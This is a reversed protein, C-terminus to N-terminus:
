QRMLWVRLGTIFVILPIFIVTAFFIFGVNSSTLSLHRDTPQRAELSILEVREDNHGHRTVWILGTTIAQEDVTSVEYRHVGSVFVLGHKKFEYSQALAPENAPDHLKYTLLDSYRSYRELYDKSKRWHQSGAQFFGVVQVPEALNELVTITQESLTFERTETLDYEFNNKLSLFNVIVLISVFTLCIVLINSAYRISRGALALHVTNPRLLIALLILVAGAGGGIQILQTQTPDVLFIVLSGFLIIFGVSALLRPYSRFILKSHGLFHGIM